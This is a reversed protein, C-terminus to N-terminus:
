SPRARSEVRLKTLRVADAARPSSANVFEPHRRSTLTRRPLQARPRAEAIL